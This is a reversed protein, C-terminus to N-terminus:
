TSQPLFVCMVNVYKRRVKTNLIKDLHEFCYPRQKNDAAVSSGSKMGRTRPEFDLMMRLWHEFYSQSLRCVSFLYDELYSLCHCVICSYVFLSVDCAKMLWFQSRRNWLTRPHTFSHTLSHTLVDMVWESLDSLFHTLSHHTLSHHTLSHTLSPTLLDMVWGSLDSLFHTLSQFLLDRLWESLDILSHALSDILWDILTIKNAV